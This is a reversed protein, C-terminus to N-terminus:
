EAEELKLMLKKLLAYLNVCRGEFFELDDDQVNGQGCSWRLAGIAEDLDNGINRLQNLAERTLLPPPLKRSLIVLRTYASLSLGLYTACQGLWTVEELTVRTRIIISRPGQSSRPRRMVTHKYQTDENAM